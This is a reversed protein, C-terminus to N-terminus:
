AVTQYNWANRAHFVHRSQTDALCAQPIVAFWITLFPIAHRPCQPGVNRRVVFRLNEMEVSLRKQNAITLPLCERVVVFVWFGLSFVFWYFVVFGNWQKGRRVFLRGRFKEHIETNTKSYRAFWKAYERRTKRNAVICHTYKTDFPQIDSPNPLKREKMKGKNKRTIQGRRWHNTELCCKGSRVMRKKNRWLANGM